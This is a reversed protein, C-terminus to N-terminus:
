DITILNVQKAYNTLRHQDHETLVFLAQKIKVLELLQEYFLTAVEEDLQSLPEDTKVTKTASASSSNSAGQQSQHQQHVNFGIVAGVVVIIVIIFGIVRKYM